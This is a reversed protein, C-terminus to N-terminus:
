YSEVLRLFESARSRWDHTRAFERRRDRDASRGQAVAEGVSRVFGAATDEVFTIGSYKRAEPISTSVVPIGAALYELLKLPDVSITWKSLVYPIIGVDFHQVYAPLDDYGRVGLRRINSKSLKAAESQPLAEPGVLVISANRYVESLRVMLDVDCQTSISGAFGIIPRPISRLDSPVPRPRAFHDFNVGQPLHFARGSSPRKLETLSAATAIVADVKSLLAKELPALMEASYSPFNLFDDLCYYISTLEGLRGLVGHSPPSGTVIVPAKTFGRRRLERTVSGVLSATNFRFVAPVHHWPLVRPEIIVSPRAGELQEGYASRSGSGLARVLRSAKEAMRRVDRLRLEPVRHGIGNVWVVPYQAAVHRFVHQLTSPYRGWDDGFVVFPTGAKIPPM